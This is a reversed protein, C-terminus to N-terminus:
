GDDSGRGNQGQVPEGPFRSRLADWRPDGGVDRCGCDGSALEKGCSPCLGPCDARCLPFAPLALLLEERLAPLPDLEAEKPDLAYVGESEEWRGIQPEFRLDLRLDTRHRIEALCRRCELRVTAELRGTLRVGGEGAPEARISIRPADLLELGGLDWVAGDAQLRGSWEVAGKEIRDLALVGVPFGYNM